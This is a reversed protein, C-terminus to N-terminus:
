VKDNKLLQKVVEYIIKKNNTNILKKNIAKYLFYYNNEIDKKAEDINEYVSNAKYNYL